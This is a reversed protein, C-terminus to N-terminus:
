TSRLLGCEDRAFTNAVEFGSEGPAIKKIAVVDKCKRPQWM